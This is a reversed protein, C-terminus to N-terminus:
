FFVDLTLYVQDASDVPVMTGSETAMNLSATMMAADDTDYPKTNWDNGTYDYEYHQYGLRIFTKAYESVAEGTPLDYIMYVEGVHGRAALKAMYLDDHGPNFAIWYESGYNYELGLKLGIDPLDYRLGAYLSYGTESDTNPRWNPNQAMSGDAQMIMSTAYDNFMGHGGPDTKSFGGSIFYNIDGLKAQYVASPTTCIEKPLILRGNM